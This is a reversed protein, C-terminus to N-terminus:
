GAAGAVQLAEDAPCPLDPTVGVGEWNGGTRAIVSRAVPIQCILGEALTFREVPHAGGGTREGIVRARGNAQLVYALDEGGSFTRHSTLIDVPGDYAITRPRSLYDITPRHRHEFWGLLVPEAGLLWGHIMAITDTDGGGCARLDIVLREAGAVLACMADICPEARDADDLYPSITVVAIGDLRRQVGAIGAAPPRPAPAQVTAARLSLHRDPILQHLRANVANRDPVLAALEASHQRLLGAYRAADAELVYHHEVLDAMEDFITM